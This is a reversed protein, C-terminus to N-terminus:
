GPNKIKLIENILIPTINNRRINDPCKERKVTKIKDVEDADQVFTLMNQSELYSDVDPKPGCFISYAPVGLGAGERIMTGGGSIVADAAWLLDLGNVVDDPITLMGVGKSYANRALEKQGETRALLILQVTEDTSFRKIIAAYIEDARPNHYHAQSAPARLVIIVKSTDLRLKDLAKPDPTFKSLYVDEKIGSYKFYKTLDAGQAILKENSIAEPVIFRNVKIFRDFFPIGKAGEYDYFLASPIVVFSATILQARSGHSLAIDIKHDKIYIFLQVARVILGWIKMIPNKGYHKGIQVYPIKYLRLLKVTDSYDRCTLVINCGRNSLEEIIPRFFPVHPANDLDIWVSVKKEIAVASTKLNTQM